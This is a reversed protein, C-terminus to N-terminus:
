KNFALIVYALECKVYGNESKAMNIYKRVRKLDVGLLHERLEYFVNGIYLVRKHM